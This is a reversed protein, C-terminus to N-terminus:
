RSRGHKDMRNRNIEPSNKRSHSTHAPKPPTPIRIRRTSQLPRLTRTHPTNSRKPKLQQQYKPQSKFKLGLQRKSHPAYLVTYYHHYATVLVYHLSPVNCLGSSQNKTKRTPQLHIGSRPRRTRNPRTISVQPQHLKRRHVRRTHVLHPQTPTAGHHRYGTSIRTM